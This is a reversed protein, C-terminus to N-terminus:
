IFILVRDDCTTAEGKYVYITHWHTPRRRAKPRPGCVHQVAARGGVHRGRGM